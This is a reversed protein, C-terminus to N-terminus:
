SSPPTSSGHTATRGLADAVRGSQGPTEGGLVGLRLRRDAQAPGDSACLASPAASMGHLIADMLHVLKNYGHEGSSKIWGSPISRQTWNVYPQSDLLFPYGHARAYRRHNTNSGYEANFMASDNSNHMVIAIRRTWVPEEDWISVNRAAIPGPSRAQRVLERGPVFLLGSMCLVCAALLILNRFPPKPQLRPGAESSFALAQYGRWGATVSDLVGM